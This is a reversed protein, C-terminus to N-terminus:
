EFLPITNTAYPMISISYDAPLRQEALKIAENMTAAPELLLNRVHEPQMESVLIVKIRILERSFQFAKHPGVQFQVNKFKELAAQPSNIGKMFDEYYISGSGEPCAAILIVIGGNKTLLSAHSLAKQSQYLNIDKPHGGVSAIVLDTKVNAKTQSIQKSIPIGALMVEHPDGFLSEIIAKDSNLITNLAFHIDLKQGIEEIDQRLPNRDFEGIAANPDMMLSHNANIMKRSGLGIVATKYGGSFGSFHHPEINGIVIKLDALMFRKDIEIPTGRSSTGLSLFNSSDDCDHSIVQYKRSINEPLIEKFESCKIPTHTGTSILLKIKSQEYGLENLEKLLPPLLYQHPVPRTKDNIAIAVSEQGSSGPLRQDKLPHRISQRVAEM